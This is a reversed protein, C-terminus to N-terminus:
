LESVEKESVCMNICIDTKLIIGELYEWIWENEESQKWEFVPLWSSDDLYTPLLRIDQM